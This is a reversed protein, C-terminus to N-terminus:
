AFLAKIPALAVLEDVSEFLSSHKHIYKLDFPRNTFVLLSAPAVENYFPCRANRELVFLTRLLFRHLWSANLNM